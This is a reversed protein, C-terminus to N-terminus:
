SRVHNFMRLSAGTSSCLVTGYLQGLAIGGDNPPIRQHWYPTFGEEGLRRITRETLLANQFCGGSLVVTTRGSREAITCIIEAMTRHFRGAILPVAVGSRVDDILSRVMPEWDIQAVSPDSPLLGVSFPYAGDADTGAVSELELAAQGEYAMTQRLGTLSSVADFLRGASSTRPANFGNHIMRLLAETQKADFQRMPPLDAFEKLDGGTMEALLGLACRRPEKVAANGGPLPFPRLTAIRRMEEGDWEFFEGGWVTGDDGFGTGDWAVGLLGATLRNEAMCSFIHAAHHQVTQQPLPLSRAFTGSLYDPHADAAVVDPTIGYLEQLGNVTRTFVRYSEETELDGIHQSIFVSAGANVAVTNKLHAGVALISRDPAHDLMVPLPALGRARRLVSERGAIIRVISDDAHRLIPRDHMLFLDAIGGLRRLADADDTCIPEDTLNGSTAILPLPRELMLLHHLPAYPLLIGLLPNGPAVSPALSKGEPNDSRKRVLVIPAATGLLADTEKRDLECYGLAAAINPMMVAFPKEERRKRERLLRVSHDNFPDTMLHYGGIGKVAVIRGEAIARATHVLADNGRALVTGRADTLTLAPGCVPCANPQAHFRRDAPDDYERRCEPCMTFRDMSTNVRDYPISRIISWRPGCNTCNIFPYRYRRNVPDLMERLCDPCMALDPMIVASRDGSHDSERIEFGSYGAPDLETVEMSHISAISPKQLPLATAFRDLDTREGEAEILVGGSHNSVWGTLNCEQALRYVFPRFGVGQVAGHISFHYRVAAAM